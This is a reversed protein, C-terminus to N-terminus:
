VDLGKVDLGTPARRLLLFLLSNVVLFAIAVAVHFGAPANHLAGGALQSVNMLIELSPMSSALARVIGRLPSVGAALFLVVALLLVAIAGTLVLPWTRHTAAEWPALPLADIRVPRPAVPLEADLEDFMARCAACTELHAAHTEPDEFYQDCTTTM